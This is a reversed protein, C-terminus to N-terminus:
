QIQTYMEWLQPQLHLFPWWSLSRPAMLCASIQARGDEVAYRCLDVLGLNLWSVQTIKADVGLRASAVSLMAHRKWCSFAHANLGVETWMEQRWCRNPQTSCAATFGSAATFIHWSSCRRSQRRLLRRQRQRRQTTANSGCHRLYHRLLIWSNPTRLPDNRLLGSGVLKYIM